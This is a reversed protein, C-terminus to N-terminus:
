GAEKGGIADPAQGREDASHVAGDALARRGAGLSGLAAAVARALEPDTPTPRALHEVLRLLFVSRTEPPLPIAAVILDGLQHDTLSLPCSM